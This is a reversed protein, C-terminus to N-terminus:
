REETSVDSLEIVFHYQEKRLMKLIMELRERIDIKNLESQHTFFIWPTNDKLLLPEEQWHEIRLNTPYIKMDKTKQIVGHKTLEHLEDISLNYSKQYNERSFLAKIGLSQCAEVVQDSAEYYHLRIFTSISEGGVIRELEKLCTTYDEVFENESSLGYTTNKNRSHFGFQLWSANNIFENQFRNPITKLSTESNEYFCYLTVCLSYKEHLENLYAFFPEDFLSSYSADKLMLFPEFVDDVSFHAIKSM